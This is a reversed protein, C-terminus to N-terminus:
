LVQLNCAIAYRIKGDQIRRIRVGYNESCNITEEMVIALSGSVREIVLDGRRFNM